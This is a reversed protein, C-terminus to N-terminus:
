VGIWAEDRSITYIEVTLISTPYDEVILNAQKWFVRWPLKELRNLYSLIDLYNGKVTLIMSHRYFAPPRPEAGPQKEAQEGEKTKAQDKKATKTKDSKKKKAQKSKGQEGKKATDKGAQAGDGEDDNSAESEPQPIEMPQPELNEVSQITVNHQALLISNIMSVMEQPKVLTRM